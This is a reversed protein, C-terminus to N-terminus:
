SDQNKKEEFGISDLYAESVNHDHSNQREFLILSTEAGSLFPEAGTGKTAVSGAPGQSPEAPSCPSSALSRGHKCRAPSLVPGWPLVTREPM